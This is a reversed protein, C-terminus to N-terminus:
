FYRSLALAQEMVWNGGRLVGGGTSNTGTYYRGLGETQTASLFTSQWSSPKM